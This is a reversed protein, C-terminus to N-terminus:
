DGDDEADEFTYLGSTIMDVFGQMEFGYEFGFQRSRLHLGGKGNPLGVFLICKEIEGLHETLYELLEAKDSNQLLGPLYDKDLMTEGEEVM